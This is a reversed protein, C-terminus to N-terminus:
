TKRVRRLAQLAKLIIIWVVFSGLAGYEAPGIQGHKADTSGEPTKGDDSSGGDGNLMKIVEVFFTAAVAVAAGAGFAELQQRHVLATNTLIYNVSTPGDVSWSLESADGLAPNSSSVTYGNGVPGVSIQGAIRHPAYWPYGGLYPWNSFLCPGSSSPQQSGPAPSAIQLLNVASEEGTTEYAHQSRLTGVTDVSGAGFPNLRVEGFLVQSIDLNAISGCNSSITSGPNGSLLEKSQQAIPNIEAAGSSLLLAYSLVRGPRGQSFNLGVERAGTPFTGTFADYSLGDATSIYGRFYNITLTVAVHHENTLLLMTVRPNSRPAQAVPTSVEFLLFGGAGFIIALFMYVILRRQQKWSRVTV